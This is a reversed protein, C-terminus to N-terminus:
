FSLASQEDSTSRDKCVSGGDYRLGDSSIEM